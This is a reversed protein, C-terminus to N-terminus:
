GESKWYNEAINNKKHLFRALIFFYDSLRNLLGMLPLYCENKLCLTVVQREARRCVTRCVHAQAIPADGQPLIFGKLPELGESLRDIEGEVKLIFATTDFNKWFDTWKETPTALVGGVVFLEKQIETLFPIAVMSVLMGIQANLEDVTGYANLLDDSKSVRTGDVLSTTGKDGTKTYIKM